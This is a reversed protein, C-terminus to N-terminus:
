LRHGFGRQQREWLEACKRCCFSAGAEIEEDEGCLHCEGNPRPPEKRKNSLAVKLNHEQYAQADDVVDAM